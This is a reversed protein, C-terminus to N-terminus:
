AVDDSSGHRLSGGLYPALLGGGDLLVADQLGANSSVRHAPRGM